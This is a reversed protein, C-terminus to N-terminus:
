IVGKEADRRIIFGNEVTTKLEVKFKSSEESFYIHLEKEKKIPRISM